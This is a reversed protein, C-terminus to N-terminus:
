PQPKTTDNSEDAVEPDVPELTSDPDPFEVLDESFRLTVVQSSLGNAGHESSTEVHNLFYQRQREQQADLQPVSENAIPVSAVEPAEDLGTNQLALIAILAVSAAIAAGALPRTVWSARVVSKLVNTDVPRQDIEAAVRENLRDAGALGAENRILRGIAMYEAVERRLETDQSMRRLLLEAENEPLEGDVFASLQM